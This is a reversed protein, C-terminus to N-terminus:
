LGAEELWQRIEDCAAQYRIQKMQFYTPDIFRFVYELETDSFRQLLKNGSTPPAVYILWPSIKGTEIWLIARETSCNDFFSNWENGTIEAWEILAPISREIARRPHEDRVVSQVWAELTKNTMWEYVPKGTTIINTIFGERELIDNQLVYGALDYFDNFIKSKVFHMLPEVDKKMTFHNFKMFQLYIRFAERMQRSDRDNYRDRKVCKHTLVTEERKYEKDCFHCKFVPAKPAKKPAKAM